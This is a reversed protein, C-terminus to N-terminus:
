VSPQDSHSERCLEALLDYLHDIDFPKVEHSLEPLERGLAVDRDLAHREVRPAGRINTASEYATSSAQLQWPAATLPGATDV